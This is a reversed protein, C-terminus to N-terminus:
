RAEIGLPTSWWGPAAAMFGISQNSPMDVSTHNLAAKPYVADQLYQSYIKGSANEILKALIDFAVNSYM